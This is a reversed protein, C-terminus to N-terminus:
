NVKMSRTASFTTKSVGGGSLFKSRRVAKYATTINDTDGTKGRTGLHALQGEGDALNFEQGGAKVLKWTTFTDDVLLSFVSLSVEVQDHVRGRTIGEYDTRFHDIGNPPIEVNKTKELYIHHPIM